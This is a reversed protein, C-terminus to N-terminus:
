QDQRNFKYFASKVRDCARKIFLRHHPHHRALYM